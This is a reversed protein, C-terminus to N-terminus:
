TIMVLLLLSLWQVVLRRIETASSVPCPSSQRTEKEENSDNVVLLTITTTEGDLSIITQSVNTCDRPAIVSGDTLFLDLGVQGDSRDIHM